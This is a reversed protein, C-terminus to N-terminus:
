TTIRMEPHTHKPYWIVNRKVFVIILRKNKTYIGKSYPEVFNSAIEWHM